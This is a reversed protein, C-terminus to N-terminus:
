KIDDFIFVMGDMRAKWPLGKKKGFIQQPTYLFIWTADDRIMQSAKQMLAERVKPDMTRAQQLILKDVERNCYRNWNWGAPYVGDCLFTTSLVGDGDLSASKIYLLFTSNMAESRPTFIRKLFTAWEFLNIEVNVGVQALDGAVAQAVEKGQAVGGIPVDMKITFGNPYMAEALLKRALAPDYQYPKLGPDYGFSGPFLPGNLPTARGRWITKVIADKNVAHNLARRVRLDSMPGEHRLWVGISLPDVATTVESRGSGELREVLLAPLETAIDVEGALVAAVRTTAEPVFRITVNRVAPRGGWYDGNAVLKIHSGKVWEVFRYPGTGVPKVGAEPSGVRKHYDPSGIHILDAVRTLMLPDPHTTTVRVAYPNIIEVKEFAKAYVSAQSVKPDRARELTWKVAEANFPDGNHFKVNRRLHFIWTRDDVREWREALRPKIQNTAGDRTLLADYIHGYVRRHNTVIRLTGDLTELDSADAVVVSEIRAPAAQTPALGAAPLLPLATVVMLAALWVAIRHM